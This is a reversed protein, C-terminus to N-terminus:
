IYYLIYSHKGEIKQIDFMKAFFMSNCVFTNNFGYETRLSYFYEFKM